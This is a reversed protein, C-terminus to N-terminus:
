ADLHARLAAALAAVDRTMRAFIQGAERSDLQKATVSLGHELV